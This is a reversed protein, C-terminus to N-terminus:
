SGYGPPSHRSLLLSSGSNEPLFVLTLTLRLRRLSCTRSSRCTRSHKEDAALILIHEFTDPTASTQVDSMSHRRYVGARTVESRRSSHPSSKVCEALGLQHLRHLDRGKTLQCQISFSIVVVKMSIADATAAGAMAAPSRVLESHTADAANSWLLLQFRM